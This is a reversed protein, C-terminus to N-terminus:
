DPTPPAFDLKGNFWPKVVHRDSSPVDVIHKAQMSRIHASAVEQTLREHASTM